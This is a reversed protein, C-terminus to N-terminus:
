LHCIFLLQTMHDERFSECSEFSSMYKNSSVLIGKVGHDNSTTVPGQNARAGEDEEDRVTVDTGALAEENRFPHRFRSCATLAMSIAGRAFIM